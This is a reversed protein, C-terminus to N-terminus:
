VFYSEIINDVVQQFFGPKRCLRPNRKRQWEIRDLFFEAHSPSVLGNKVGPLYVTSRRKASHLVVGQQRDGTFSCHRTTETEASREARAVAADNEKHLTELDMM